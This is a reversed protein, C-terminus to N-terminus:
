IKNVLSAMVKLFKTEVEMYSEKKVTKYGKLYCNGHTDFTFGKEMLTKVALAPWNNVSDVGRKMGGQIMKGNYNMQVVFNNKDLSGNKMVAYSSFQLKGIQYVKSERNNMKSEFGLMQNFGVNVKM